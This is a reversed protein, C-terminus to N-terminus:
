DNLNESGYDKHPTLMVPCPPDADGSYGGSFWINAKRCDIDVEHIFNPISNFHAVFLTFENLYSQSNRSAFVENLSMKFSTNELDFSKTSLHNLAIVKSEM